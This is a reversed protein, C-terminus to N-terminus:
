SREREKLELTKRLARAHFSLAARAQFGLAVVPEDKM